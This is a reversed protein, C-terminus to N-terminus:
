KTPLPTSFSHAILTIFRDSLAAREFVSNLQSVATPLDALSELCVRAEVSFKAMVAAAPVGKGAVDCLLVALRGDPLRVFDYYDGGIQQASEYYAFFEYGPIAPLENPLLARQIQRATEMDRIRRQNDLMNRHLEANQLALSVQSAVVVLLRLEDSSFPTANPKADLQIASTARGEEMWLPACVLSRSQFEGLSGSDPVLNGLDNGLIAEGTELCRRIVGRSFMTDSAGSRHHLRRVALPGDARNCGVILCREANPFLALLNKGIRDLLIEEEFTSRLNESLELILRVRDASQTQRTQVSQAPDLFESISFTSPEDEQFTLRVDGFQIVDDDRLIMSGPFPVRQDNVYTGNHSPRGKGDGDEILWEDGNQSLVAQRRSVSQKSNRDSQHMTERVVFTCGSERGLSIRNGKLPVSKGRDSGSQILFFAM